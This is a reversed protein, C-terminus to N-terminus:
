KRALIYLHHAQYRRFWRPLTLEVGRFFSIMKSSSPQGAEAGNNESDIKWEWKKGVAALMQKLAGRLPMDWTDLWPPIDIEGEEEIQLGQELVARRIAAMTMQSGYGHDWEMGSMAHYVKHFPTGFNYFNQTMLMVYRRSVRKMEAVLPNPNAFREFMCYNWVLDFSNDDFPTADVECPVLRLHEILDVREWAERACDLMAPVPNTLTVSAGNRAFELSMVGPVGTVGDAPSELVATIGHNTQLRRLFEDILIREYVTGIGEDMDRPAIRVNREVFRVMTDRDSRGNVATGNRGAKSKRLRLYEKGMVFLVFMTSPVYFALWTALAVPKRIVNMM